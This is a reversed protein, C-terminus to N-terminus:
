ATCVRRRTRRMSEAISRRSCPAGLARLELVLAAVAVPAVEDGALIRAARAQSAIACVLRATLRDVHEARVIRQATRHGGCPLRLRLLAAMDGGSHLWAGLGGGLWRLGADDSALLRGSLARAFAVLEPHPLKAPDTSPLVRGFADRNPDAM